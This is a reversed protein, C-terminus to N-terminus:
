VYRRRCGLPTLRRVIYYPEREADDAEPTHVELVNKDLMKHLMESGTCHKAQLTGVVNDGGGLTTLTIKVISEEVILMDPGQSVRTTLTGIDAAFNGFGAKTYMEHRKM